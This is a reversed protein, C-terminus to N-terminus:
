KNQKDKTNDKIRGKNSQTNNWCLSQLRKKCILSEHDM